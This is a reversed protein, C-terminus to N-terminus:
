APRDWQFYYREAIIVRIQRPTINLPRLVERQETKFRDDFHQFALTLYEEGPDLGLAAGAAHFTRGDTALVEATFPGLCRQEIGGSGDAVMQQYAVTQQFAHLHVPSDAPIQWQVWWTKETTSWRCTGDDGVRVLRPASAWPPGERAWWVVLTGVAAAIALGAAALVITIGRLRM